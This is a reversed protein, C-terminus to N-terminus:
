SSGNCVECNPHSAVCEVVESDRWLDYELDVDGNQTIKKDEYPFFFRRDVESLTGMLCGRIHAITDYKPRAKFWRAVIVYLVYTVAGASWGQEDLNYCLDDLPNRYEERDDKTIYPM